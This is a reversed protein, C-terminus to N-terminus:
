RTNPPPLVILGASSMTKSSAISNASVTFPRAKKLASRCTYIQAGSIIRAAATVEALGELIMTIVEAENWVEGHEGLTIRIFDKPQDKTGHAM